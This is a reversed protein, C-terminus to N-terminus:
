PFGATATWIDKRTREAKTTRHVLFVIGSASRACTAVVALITGM